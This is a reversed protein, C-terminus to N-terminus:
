RKKAWRSRGLSAAGDVQRKHNAIWAEADIQSAFSTVTTPHADPITVEVAFRADPQPVVRYKAEAYPHIKEM